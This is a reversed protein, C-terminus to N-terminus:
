ECDSEKRFIEDYNDSIFNHLLINVGKRYAYGM